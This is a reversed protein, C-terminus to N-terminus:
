IQTTVYTTRLAILTALTAVYTVHLPDEINFSFPKPLQQNPTLWEPVPNSLLRMLESYFLANFDRIASKICEEFSRPLKAMIEYMYNTTMLQPLQYKTAPDLYQKVSNLESFPLRCVHGQAWRLCHDFRYPWLFARDSPPFHRAPANALNVNTTLHPYIVQVHGRTGSM